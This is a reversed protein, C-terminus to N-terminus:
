WVAGEHNLLFAKRELGGAYGTLTKNSGIVRHCPVVIALPNRGNAMGVARVAKPNNIRRAIDGYSVTQGYAIDQLAQWVQHQFTTGTATLPLSFHQREGAFYETLQAVAAQTHANPQGAAPTDTFDIQYLGADTANVVLLGCPTSLTQSFM